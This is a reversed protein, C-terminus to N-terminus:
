STAPQEADFIRYILDIIATCDKQLLHWTYDVGFLHKKFPDFGTMIEALYRNDARHEAGPRETFRGPQELLMLTDEAVAQFEWESRQIRNEQEIGAQLAPIVETLHWEQRLLLAVDFIHKLRQAEKNKGLPIGLTSPGLTLLKDAILSSVTSVETDYASAYLDLCKVPVRTGPYPPAALVADLMVYSEQDPNILSDFYIKYSIMPLWPKTKHPRVECRTFLPCDATLQEVVATLKEREVTTAIDVDISFRQPNQLLLLLSNGGKFRYELGSATLQSVLELCHAALEALAADAFGSQEQYSEATFFRNDGAQM